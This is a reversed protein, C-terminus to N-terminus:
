LKKTKIPRKDFYDDAQKEIAKQWAAKCAPCKEHVDNDDMELFTGYEDCNDDIFMRCLSREDELRECKSYDAYYPDIECYEPDDFIKAKVDIKIESM